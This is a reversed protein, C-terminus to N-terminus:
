IVILILLAPVINCKIEQVLSRQNLKNDIIM